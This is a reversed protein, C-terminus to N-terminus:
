AKFESEGWTLAGFRVDGLEDLKLLGISVDGLEGLKLM